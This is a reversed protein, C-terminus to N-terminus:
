ELFTDQSNIKIDVNTDQSSIKIDVNKHFIFTKSNNCCLNLIIHFAFIM